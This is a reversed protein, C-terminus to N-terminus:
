PGAPSPFLTNLGHRDWDVVTNSYARPQETTRNVGHRDWDVVTIASARPQETTRNVGHRDWDSDSPGLQETHYQLRESQFENVPLWGPRRLRNGRLLPPELRAQGVV